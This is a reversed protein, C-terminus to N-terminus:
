VAYCRVNGCVLCPGRGGPKVRVLCVVAAGLVLSDPTTGEARRKLPWSYPRM